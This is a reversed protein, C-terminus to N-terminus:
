RIYCKRYYSTLYGMLEIVMLRGEDAYLNAKNSAVNNVNHRLATMHIEIVDRPSAYAKGLNNGMVQLAETLNYKVKYMRREVAQEMLKEYQAVMLEFIDPRAQHLSKMGYATATDQATPPRSLQELSNIERSRTTELEKRETIDRAISLITPKGDYEILRSNIEVPFVTGDKRRHVTEFTRHNHTLIYQIHEAIQAAHDPTDVYALNMQTLTQRDYGLRECAVQNAELINGEIDHIFIADSANDFLMRFKAESEQLLKEKRKLNILANVRALLERNSVPRTIYGDAGSEIGSAQDRSSTQLGSILIVYISELAPDSKIKQCVEFGQIEPLMVDLLILDPLHEGALQLAEEGTAAALVDYDAKELLRAYAYRIGPDDDVVLIKSNELM